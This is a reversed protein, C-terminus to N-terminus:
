RRELATRVGRSLALSTLKLLKLSQWHRSAGVLPAAMSTGRMLAVGGTVTSLIDTGPAALTPYIFLENTPGFNSYSSYQM